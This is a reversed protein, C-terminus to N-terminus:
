ATENESIQHEIEDRHSRFYASANVLDEARLTPYCKLLDAESMGLRKAQALVWVPVRTRIICPDGGCVGHISDIGPFADGLDSVVLQLLQAKEGKTMTSLLEEAEQIKSM